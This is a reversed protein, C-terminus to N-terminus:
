SYMLLKEGGLRNSIFYFKAIGLIKALQNSASRYSENQDHQIAQM